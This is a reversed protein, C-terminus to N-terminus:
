SNVGLLNSSFCLDVLISPTKEQETKQTKEQEMKQCFFQHMCVLHHFKYQYPSKLAVNTKKAHTHIKSKIVAVVYGCDSSM